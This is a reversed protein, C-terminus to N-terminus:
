LYPFLGQTQYFPTWICNATFIFAKVLVTKLFTKSCFHVYDWFCIGTHLFYPTLDASGLYWFYQKASGQKSSSRCMSYFLSSRQSKSYNPNFDCEKM